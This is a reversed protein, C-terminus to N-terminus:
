GLDNPFNQHSDTWQKWRSNLYLDMPDPTEGTPNLIYLHLSCKSIQTTCTVYTICIEDRDILCRFYPGGILPLHMSNCQLKETLSFLHWWKSALANFISNSRYKLSLLDCHGLEQFTPWQPWLTDLIDYIYISIQGNRTLHLVTRLFRMIVKIKIFTPWLSRIKSM